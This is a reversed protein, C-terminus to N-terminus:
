LSAGAACRGQGPPPAQVRPRGAPHGNMFISMISVSYPGKQGNQESFGQPDCVKADPRAKIPEATRDYSM